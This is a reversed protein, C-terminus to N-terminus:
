AVSFSMSGVFDFLELLLVSNLLMYVGSLVINSTNSSKTAGKVRPPDRLASHDQEAERILQRFRGLDMTPQYSAGDSQEESDVM